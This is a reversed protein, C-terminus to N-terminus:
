AHGAAKRVEAKRAQATTGSFSIAIRTAVRQKRQWAYNVSAREDNKLESATAPKGNGFFADLREM